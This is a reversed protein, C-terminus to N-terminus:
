NLKFKRLLKIRATPLFFFPREGPLFSVDSNKIQRRDSGVKVPRLFFYRTDESKYRAISQTEEM